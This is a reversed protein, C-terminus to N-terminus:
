LQEVGVKVQSQLQSLCIIHFYSSSSSSFIASLQITAESLQSFDYSTEMRTNRMYGASSQMAKSVLIKQTREAAHLSNWHSRAVHRPWHLAM